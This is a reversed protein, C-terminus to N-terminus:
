EGSKCGARIFKIDYGQYQQLIQDPADTILVDIKDLSCVHSMAHKGFKSHDALIIVQQANEIMVQETKVVLDNTNFIGDPSIGGASLFACEAHYHRLSEETNPGILIGSKSHIFGGTLYIEMDSNEMRKEELLVALRLSNTIIKVQMKALHLGMHFTTTGGDIFIAHGPKVLSAAKQAIAAKEASYQIQRLAFPSLGDIKSTRM